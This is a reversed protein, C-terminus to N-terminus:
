VPWGTLEESIFSTSFHIGTLNDNIESLSKPHFHPQAGQSFRFFDVMM